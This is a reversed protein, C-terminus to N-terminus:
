LVHDLFGRLRDFDTFVVERIWVTTLVLVTAVAALARYNALAWANPVWAPVPRHVVYASAYLALIPVLPV